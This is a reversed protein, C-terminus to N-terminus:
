VERFWKINFWRKPIRDLQVLTGFGNKKEKTIRYVRGRELGEPLYGNVIKKTESDMYDTPNPTVIKM